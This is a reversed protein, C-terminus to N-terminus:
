LYMIVLTSFKMMKLDEKAIKLLTLNSNAKISYTVKFNEYDVLSAMEKCRSRFIEESYIYLPSGYQALLKDPNNGKYYNTQESFYSKM